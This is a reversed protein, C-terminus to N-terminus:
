SSSTAQSNLVFSYNQCIKGTVLLCFKKVYNIFYYNHAIVENNTFINLNRV